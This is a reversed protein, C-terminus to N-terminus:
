FRLSLGALVHHTNVDTDVITKSFGPSAVDFGFEPSFHTFRYEAFVGINPTLLFTVGTGVKVGLSTDTSSQNSPFGFNTSDRATAVFIAPGITFYPQLRGKPFQPSAILGPWRLMLDFSIDVVSLDVKDVAGSGLSVGNVAFNATQPSIDPQFYSVDVGLGLWPVSGFWYGFRGGGVFSTDFHLDQGTVEATTGLFTFKAPVDHNQTFAGGVYLDGFWEASAAGPGMVCALGVAALLSVKRLM